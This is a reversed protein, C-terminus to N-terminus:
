FKVCPETNIKNTKVFFIAKPLAFPEQEGQQRKCWSCLHQWGLRDCPAISSSNMYNLGNPLIPIFYVNFSIGLHFNTAWRACQLLLAFKPNSIVQHTIIGFHRNTFSPLIPLGFYKSFLKLWSRSLGDIQELVFVAPHGRFEVWRFLAQINWKFSM